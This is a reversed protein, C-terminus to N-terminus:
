SCLSNIIRTSVRQSMKRAILVEQFGKRGLVSLIDGLLDSTVGEADPLFELIKSIFGVNSCQELNYTSKRLIAAFMSLAQAQLIQDIQRIFNLFALLAGGNAIIFSGEM